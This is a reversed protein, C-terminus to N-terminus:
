LVLSVKKREKDGAAGGGGGACCVAERSVLPLACGPQRFALRLLPLLPISLRRRTPLRGGALGGGGVCVAVFISGETVFLVTKECSSAASYARLLSPRFLM